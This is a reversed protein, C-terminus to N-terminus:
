PGFTVASPATVVPSPLIAPSSCMANASSPLPRLFTVIITCIGLVKLVVLGHM